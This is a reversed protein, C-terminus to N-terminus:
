LRELAKGTIPCRPHRVVFPKMFEVQDWRGRSPPDAVNSPSAVRAMWLLCNLNEDIKELALLLRRWWRIPSSSKVFVDIATWNDCFCIVRRGAMVDKWLGLAVVVAYMETLGVPHNLETMWDKLVDDDVRNGFMQVTNDYILVGGITAEVNGNENTEVAGDTFIIVPREPVDASLQQPKGSTVRALLTKFAEMSVPDLVLQKQIKASREWERIDALALKGQRGSIRMEAFQVRGLVSPLTDVDMNGRELIKRIEAALEAKRTDKNDIVVCGHKSTDLIIGLMESKAVEVFDQMGRGGRKAETRLLKSGAPISHWSSSLVKKDNIPPMENSTVTRVAAFEPIIQPLARGKAQQQPRVKEPRDITARQFNSGFALRELVNAYQECLAKPYEAEKATNFEGKEFDYGWQKHPHTGDCFKELVMFEAESCLFATKKKREGQLIGDASDTKSLDDMGSDDALAVQSDQATSAVDWQKQTTADLKLKTSSSQGVESRRKRGQNMRPQLLHRFEASNFVGAFAQDCPRGTQNAKIGSRTAEGLLVFFKKDAAELQKMSVRQYGLPPEQMRVELLLETLKDHNEYEMINAQDLALGRRVLAYRVQIESMSQMPEIKSTRALKLMGDSTFTLDTDKKSNNALEYERSICLSWEIYSIRDSEYSSCCKDVLADAPEYQGRISLGSLKAQQLKLREAREAPALKRSVSEDTQKVQSEIDAAVNAYSENFLRRLISLESPNPDRGLTSQLMEVFPKDSAAGPAYNCSFAFLAMNKYGKDVFMKLVSAELGMHLARQEFVASSDGYSMAELDRHRAYQQDATGTTPPAWHGVLESVVAEEEDPNGEGAGTEHADIHLDVLQLGDSYQVIKRRDAYHSDAVGKIRASKAAVDGGALGFVHFAFSLSILLSRPATPAWGTQAKIYQYVMDEQIPFFEVGRDRWYKAFKLLPGARCHLTATARSALSDVVSEMLGGRAYQVGSGAAVTRGIAWASLKMLILSCWKKCACKREWSLRDQWLRQDSSSVARLGVKTFSDEIMESEVESAVEGAFHPMPPMGEDAELEDDDSSVSGSSYSAVPPTPVSWASLELGLRWDTAALAVEAWLFCAIWGCTFSAIVVCILSFGFPIKATPKVAASGRERIGM